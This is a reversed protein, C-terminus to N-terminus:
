AGDRAADRWGPWRDYHGDGDASWVDLIANALPQGDLSLVRGSYFCPEGRSAIAINTGMPVERVGELYFPGLITSETAAIPKRHSISDVLMSVGLIDSLLIFELGNPWRGTRILCRVGDITHVFDYRASVRSEVPGIFELALELGSADLIPGLAAMRKSFCKVYDDFRMENSFPPLYAIM